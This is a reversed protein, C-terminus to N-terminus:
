RVAFEQLGNFIFTICLVVWVEERAVTSPEFQSVLDRSYSWNHKGSDGAPDESLRENLQYKQDAARGNPM